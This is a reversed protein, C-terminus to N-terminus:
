RFVPTTLYGVYFVDGELYRASDGGNHACSRGNQKHPQNKKKSTGCKAVFNLVIELEPPAVLIDGTVKFPLYGGGGGGGGGGGRSKESEGEAVADANELYLVSLQLEPAAIV